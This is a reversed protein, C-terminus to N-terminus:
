REIAEDTVVTAAWDDIVEPPYDNAALGCVHHVELFQRAEVAQM